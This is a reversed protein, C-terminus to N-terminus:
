HSYSGFLGNPRFYLVGILVFFAVADKLSSSVYGTVLAEIVGIGLGVVMVGEFYRNGAVLMCTFAKLGYLLGVFAWASGYLTGVSVAAVGGMLSAIVITVSCVLAVNIGFAAAVDPREAIARTARGLKTKRVYFSVFALLLVCIGFNALQRVTLVVPGLDISQRPLLTPYAVPDPGAIIAMGNQLMIAVGLTGILTSLVDRGRLPQIVTRELVFGVIAAGVAGLLVAGIFGGAPFQTGAVLGAFMGVMFIEPHAFNIVRLVTFALAFGLAVVAYTSGIILGNALQQLFLDV